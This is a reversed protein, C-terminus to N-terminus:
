FYRNTLIPIIFYALSMGAYTLGILAVFAWFIMMMEGDKKKANRMALYIAVCGVFLGITFFFGFIILLLNDPM